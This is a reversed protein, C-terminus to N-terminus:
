IFIGSNLSALRVKQMRDKATEEIKTAFEPYKAM